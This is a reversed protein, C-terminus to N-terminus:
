FTPKYNRKKFIINMLWCIIIGQELGQLVDREWYFVLHFFNSIQEVDSLYLNYQPAKANLPQLDM